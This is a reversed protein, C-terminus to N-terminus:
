RTSKENLKNISTSLFQKIRFIRQWNSRYGLSDWGANWLPFSVSEVISKQISCKTEVGANLLDKM